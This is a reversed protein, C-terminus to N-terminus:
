LFGDFPNSNQVPPQLGAQPMGLQMAPQMVLPQQVPLGTAFPVAPFPMQGPVQGPLQGTFFNMAYFQPFQMPVAGQVPVASPQHLDNITREPQPEPPDQMKVPSAQAPAIQLDALCDFIAKNEREQQQRREEEEIQRQKKEKKKKKRAEQAKNDEIAENIEEAHRLQHLVEKRLARDEPLEQVWQIQATNVGAQKLKHLMPPFAATWHRALDLSRDAAKVERLSYNLLDSKVENAIHTFNKVLSALDTVLFHCIQLGLDTKNEALCATGSALVQELQKVVSAIVELQAGPSLQSEAAPDTWSAGSRTAAEANAWLYALYNKAFARYSPFKFHFQAPCKLSALVEVVPNTAGQKLAYHLLCATHLASVGDLKSLIARFALVAQSNSRLWGLVTQMHKLKPRDTYEPCITKLFATEEESRAVKAFQAKRFNKM